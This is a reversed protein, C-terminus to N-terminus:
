RLEEQSNSNEQEGKKTENCRRVQFTEKGVRRRIM